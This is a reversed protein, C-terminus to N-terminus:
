LIGWIADALVILCIAAVIGIGVWTAVKRLLPHKTEDNQEQEASVYTKTSDDAFHFNKPEDSMSGPIFDNSM